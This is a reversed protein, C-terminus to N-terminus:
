FYNGVTAADDDLADFRHPLYKALLEAALVEIMNTVSTSHNENLETILLVPTGTESELVRVRCMGHPDRDYTGRFAYRTDVTKRLTQAM